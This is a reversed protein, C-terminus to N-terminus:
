DSKWFNQFPRKKDQRRRFIFCKPLSSIEIENNGGNRPPLFYLFKKKCVRRCVFVKKRGEKEEFDEKEGEGRCQRRAHFFEGIGIYERLFKKRCKGERQRIGQRKKAEGRRQHSFNRAGKGRWFLLSASPFGFFINSGGKAAKKGCNRYQMTGEGSLAM